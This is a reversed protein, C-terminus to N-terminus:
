TGAKVSRRKATAGSNAAQTTRAKGDNVELVAKKGTLTEWRNVIVDCYQPSIEMGYCKRGLQEAAILTTGSGCFPEYVNDGKDTYAKIFFSPLGVPFAAEHQVAESKFPPLVNGPLSTGAQRDVDSGSFSIPNTTNASKLKGKYSFSDESDNRVSDPNFKISRGLSFHFIPEHQNKFRNDWSGPLGSRRWIFDDILRWGWKRVHSLVLDFVYLSRCGDDCHAKINVFWSGDDTIHSKVNQQVNDFWDCFDSEPIPKFGSSEDYKRQSAYPPSTFAVNIRGGAMLREVDEAKTSDGCLLRHDGLTWLDGPKTIPDVPPEPVEDEVVEATEGEYLKAAEALDAYMQQLGESGTDVERLLSDLAMANTEALAALPDLSLLLKDAEAENVDLILVPVELEPTTEARLHGDVLMLTGDPLERALLADAYGVEALIGKLADAQSAPHTRWNKPNPMLDGARVRRLEKVRDRIKM